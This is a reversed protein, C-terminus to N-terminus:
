AWVMAEGEPEDEEVEGVLEPLRAKKASTLVSQPFPFIIALLILLPLIHINCSISGKHKIQLHCVSSELDWIVARPHVCVAETKSSSM